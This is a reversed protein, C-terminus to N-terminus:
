RARDRLDRRRLYQAPNGLAAFLRHTLASNFPEGLDMAAFWHRRYGNPETHNVLVAGFRRAIRQAGANLHGDGLLCFYGPYVRSRRPKM